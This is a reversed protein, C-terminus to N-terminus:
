PHFCRLIEFVYLNETIDISSTIAFYFVTSILEFNYFFYIFFLLVVNYIRYAMHCISTYIRYVYKKNTLIVIINVASLNLNIPAELQGSGSSRTM